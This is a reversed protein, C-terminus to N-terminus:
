GVAVPRRAMSRAPVEDVGLLDLEVMRDYASRRDHVDLKLYAHELHKHVTRQSIGLARGAQKAAAGGLIMTLVELERPTLRDPCGAPQYRHEVLSYSYTM